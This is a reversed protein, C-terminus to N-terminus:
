ALPPEEGPHTEETRGGLHAALFAEAAASFKTRNEPHAFGHGENPFLLYTVPLNKERMLRVIQDSEAQVVRPDNAGQAILLPKQIRDIKFLPSRAELDARQAPDSPDGVFAYWTKALFPKWYAPFSEILTVLSSPGVIDVGCAFTDPTFTMGVLAAYGGYSGGFIAVKDPDGIGQACLWQVADVLDDHMKGAFERKAANTFAKGFGSSGRYNVQLVAYGRNALWQASPDYGWEDRAWPGGHVFLVAPLNKPEIGPPLTLYSPLSFGDRAPIEVPTMKALTYQGLDSRGAFLFNASQAVRDWVYYRAPGDDASFAVLWTKDDLTRSLISFEEGPRLAALADFDPQVDPDLVQWEARARNFSVAQLKQTRPHVVTEALDANSQEALLTEEGSAMDFLRAGITDAGLNSRLYLGGGDATFGLPGGQDDPGWTMVTQWDSAADTRVRLLSSFGDPTKVSVARIALSNDAVWGLVDGPNEEAMELEGGPLHLKYVDFLSPDRRNLMVLLTDPYDPSMGVVGATTKEFPTLDRAPVDPAELDVLWLHWNEDGGSDQFYLLHRSDEAFQFRRVPRAADHTVPRDDETGLTRLWVNLLGTEPHPALYALYRANPSLQPAAKEPNGFLVTRPILEPLPM